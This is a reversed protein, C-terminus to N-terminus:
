AGLEKRMMYQPAPSGCIINNKEEIIKFGMGSFFPLATKSVEAYLSRMGNKVAEQELFLYLKKGIGKRQWNFHCYFCDIHGDAELEAFALIAGDKTVVFPNKKQLRREWEKMDKEHPAWREVQETTYDRRSVTHVTHYFLQWIEQEEGQRYHRIYM